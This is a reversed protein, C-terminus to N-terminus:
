PTSTSGPSALAMVKTKGSGTAMKIAYRAFDDYQLIHIGPVKAFREILDRHRRIEEVEYALGADGHGRRQAYYYRFFRGDPAPPRRWVLLQAPDKSTATAGEYQPRRWEVVAVRIAPVCPATKVQAQFMDLQEVQLQRAKRPPM